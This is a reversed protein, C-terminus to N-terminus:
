ANVMKSLKLLGLMWHLHPLPSQSKLLLPSLMNSDVLWVMCVWEDLYHSLTYIWMYHCDAITLTVVHVCWAYQDQQHQVM